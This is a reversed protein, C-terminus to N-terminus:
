VKTAYENLRREDTEGERRGGEIKYKRHKWESM